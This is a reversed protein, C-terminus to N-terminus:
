TSGSPALELLREAPRGLVSRGSIRGIPRQMLTPHAAMARILEDEPEQGTFGLTTYASDRPRLLDRAAVGLERLVDRIEPESLPERTYERYRYPINKEDLM